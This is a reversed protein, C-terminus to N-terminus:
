LNKRVWASGLRILEQPQALTQEPPDPSYPGSALVQGPGHVFRDTDGTRDLFELWAQGNLAAVQQQPFRALAVQKLLMSVCAVLGRDAPDMQQLQRLVRHRLRNYRWRRLAWRTAVVLLLLLLAALLWWGPAPPWISPPLPAHIDRLQLLQEAEGNM